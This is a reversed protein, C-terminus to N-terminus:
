LSWVIQAGMHAEIYAYHAILFWVVHAIKFIQGSVNKLLRQFHFSKGIIVLNYCWFKFSIHLYRESCKTGLM